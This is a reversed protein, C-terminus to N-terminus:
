DVYKFDYGQASKLKGRLHKGLSDISIKLIESAEKISDYTIGNQLCVIKRSSPKRGVRKIKLKNKTEETAIKGKNALSLRLCHEKSRIKNKGSKSMKEKTETSHKKGIWYSKGDSHALSIKIKTSESLKGGTLRKRVSEAYEQTRKKGKNSKSIKEKTEKSLRQNRGGEHINYGNQISKFLRICAIERNNLEEQNNAMCLISITFNDPGHKHIARSIAMKEKDTRKRAEYLHQNWRDSIFRITQGIYIKGNVNCVIKYVYGYYKKM